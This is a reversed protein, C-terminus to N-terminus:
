CLLETNISRVQTALLLTRWVQGKNAQTVMRSIPFVYKMWGGLGAGHLFVPENNTGVISEEDVRLYEKVVM